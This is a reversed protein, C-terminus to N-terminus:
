IFDFLDVWPINNIIQIIDQKSISKDFIIYSADENEIDMFLYKEGIICIPNIYPDNNIILPAFERTLFTNLFSKIIEKNQLLLKNFQEPHEKYQVFRYFRYLGYDKFIIDFQPELIESNVSYDLIEEDLIAQTISISHKIYFKRQKWRKSSFNYNKWNDNINNILLKVASPYIKYSKSIQDIDMIIINGFIDELKLNKVYKKTINVMMQEFKDKKGFIDLESNPMKAYIIRYNDYNRSVKGIHTFNKENLGELKKMKMNIKM